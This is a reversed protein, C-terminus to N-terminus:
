RREPDIIEKLYQGIEEFSGSVSFFSDFGAAFDLLKIQYQEKKACGFIEDIQYRKGQFMPDQLLYKGGSARCILERRRQVSSIPACRAGTCGLVIGIKKAPIQQMVSGENRVYGLMERKAGRLRRVRNGTICGGVVVHDDGILVAGQFIKCLMDAFYSKGGGPEAFLFVQQGAAIVAACHLPISGRDLLIGDSAVRLVYCFAEPGLDAPFVIKRSDPRISFTEKGSCLCWCDRNPLASMLRFNLKASVADSALLETEQLTEPLIQVPADPEFLLKM